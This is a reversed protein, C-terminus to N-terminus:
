GVDREEGHLNVRFDRRYQNIVGSIKRVKTQGQSSPM